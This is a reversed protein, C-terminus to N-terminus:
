RMKRRPETLELLTGVIEPHHVLERSVKALCILSSATPFIEGERVSEAVARLKRKTFDLRTELIKSLVKIWRPLNHPQKRLYDYYGLDRSVAYLTVRVPPQVSELQKAMEALAACIKNDLSKWDFLHDQRPPINKQIWVNDDKALAKYLSSFRDRLEGRSFSPNNRRVEKWMRRMEARNTHSIMNSKTKTGPGAGIHRKRYPQAPRRNKYCRPFPLGMREAEIKIRQGARLKGLLRLAIDELTLTSDKWLMRLENEWMDGYTQVTCPIHESGSEKIAQRRYTFGCTCSFSGAIVRQYKKEVSSLATSYRCVAIVKQRYHPCIPNLCLWPGSGFPGTYDTLSLFSEATHGLMRILLLHRLPHQCKGKGLNKSFVTAWNSNNNNDIGSDLLRLVGPTYFDCL